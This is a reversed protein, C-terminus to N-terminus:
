APGRSKVQQWAANTMKWGLLSDAAVFQHASVIMWFALQFTTKSTKHRFKRQALFGGPWGGFFDLLHLITEPTRWEGAEACRKDGRYAFYSLVAMVVPVAVIARWDVAPVLRSLAYGPIAILLLLVSVAGGSIRKAPRTRNEAM